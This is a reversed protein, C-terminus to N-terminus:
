DKQAKYAKKKYLQTKKIGNLGLRNSSVQHCFKKPIPHCNRRYHCYFWSTSFEMFWYRQCYRDGLSSIFSHDILIWAICRCQPQQAAYCTLQTINEWKFATKCHNICKRTHCHYYCKLCHDKQFTIMCKYWMVYISHVNLTNECGSIRRRTQWM